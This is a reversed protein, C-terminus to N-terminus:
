IDASRTPAKEALPLITKSLSTEGDAQAKPRADFRPRLKHLKKWDTIAKCWAEAVLEALISLNNLEPESPNCVEGTSDTKDDPWAVRLELFCYRHGPLKHQFSRYHLKCEEKRTDDLQWTKEGDELRILVRSFGLKRAIFVVNEALEQISQVRTGELALCNSLAMAYQIDARSELSNGLVRGISFWERSFNFRSAMLIVALTGLGLFLALFQGHVYFALFGLLLFFATFCYLGIVVRRRSHGMDLLRHHIHKRDPRFLPLGRAGRRLIALSTDIIPLALVFLPAALAAVVTGKQSSVITLCGILFGLFYAGGDGMYIRAPPFNFRLFGLLAGTMGATILAVFGTQLSVFVLLIMLMLSIGGALGDVGDILNILNTMAVLWLVTVPWGWLGLDIIYGTFPIRFHAISIGCFFAISAILIQGFLKRRAGLAWLDDWLGLGFMALSIPIILWHDGQHLFDPKIFIFALFVALLAGAFAIGGLRPVFIKHTHHAEHTRSALGYRRSAVLILPILTLSTVLGILGAYLLEIWKM